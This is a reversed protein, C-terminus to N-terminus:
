VPLSNTSIRVMVQQNTDKTELNFNKKSNTNFKTCHAHLNCSLFYTQNEMKILTNTLLTVNKSYAQFRRNM